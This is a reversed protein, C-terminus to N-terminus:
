KAPALIRSVVRGSADDIIEIDEGQDTRIRLIVHGADAKTDVIRAGTKLQYMM